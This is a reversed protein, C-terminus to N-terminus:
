SCDGRGYVTHPHISGRYAITKDEGEAFPIEACHTTHTQHTACAEHRTCVNPSCVHLHSPCLVHLVFFFQHTPAGRGSEKCVLFRIHNSCFSISIIFIHIFNDSTGTPAPMPMKYNLSHSTRVRFILILRQDNSRNQCKQGRM